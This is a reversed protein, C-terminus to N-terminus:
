KEALWKFGGLLHLTGMSKIELVKRGILLYLTSVIYQTNPNSPGTAGPYQHFNWVPVCWIESFWTVWFFGGVFLAVNKSGQMLCPYLFYIVLQILVALFTCFSPLQVMCIMCLSSSFFTSFCWLSVCM